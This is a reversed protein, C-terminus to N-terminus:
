VFMDEIDIPTLKQTTDHFKKMSANLMDSSIQATLLGVNEINLKYFIDGACKNCLKESVCHMPSRMQVIKGRYQGIVDPTLCILDNGKKIYRYLYTDLVDMPMKVEIYSVSGCDTGQKDLVVTQFSAILQKFQYGYDATGVAKPYSGAIIANGQLHMHEKDIGEIFNTGIVEFKGEIPNYTPGKMISINKYNNEFSGRAGSYFLDMGPDDKLYEKAKKTLDKEINVALLVDGKKIREENEKLVKDRENIIEKIPSLTGMTFSPSLFHNANAGLWQIRNFYTIMQEITIKDDILAQSFMEEIEVLGKKNIPKNIFGFTDGFAVQIILKNFIVRGATTKTDEKVGCEGKTLTLTDTPKLRSPKTKGTKKDYSDAFLECLLAITIDQEDLNVIYDRTEKLNHGIILFLLFLFFFYKFKYELVIIFHKCM